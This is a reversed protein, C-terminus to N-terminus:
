HAIGVLKLLSAFIYYYPAAGSGLQTVTTGAEAIKQDVLLQTIYPATLNSLYIMVIGALISIILSRLIDGKNMIVVYLFGFALITLDGMPLVHNGPLILALGIMIPVMLMATALVAPHGTGIAPDMGIFITRNKAHKTLWDRLGEQIPMLGEILIGVVRPMLNLSAALTIALVLVDVLAYGAIIGLVIGFVFGIFMPEGFVGLKENIWEPTFRSKKFFPIADFLKTFPWAFLGIENVGTQLLSIGKYGYFAEVYPQQWDALVWSIVFMILAAALGWLYSGTILYILYGTTSQAIIPTVIDISLTKIWGLLVLGINLVFGIAVYSLGIMTFGAAFVTTWGVDMILTDSSGFRTGIAAALPSIAGMFMGLVLWIGTLAVSTILAVRVSKGFKLGVILSIIFLIFPIIITNTSILQIIVTFVAEM